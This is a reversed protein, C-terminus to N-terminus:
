HADEIYSQGYAVVSDIKCRAERNLLNTTLTATKVKFQAGRSHSIGHTVTGQTPFSRACAAPSAENQVEKKTVKGAVVRMEVQERLLNCGNHM